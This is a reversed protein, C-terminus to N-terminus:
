KIVIILFTRTSKSQTNLKVEKMKYTFLVWGNRTQEIKLCVITSEGNYFDLSAGKNVKEMKEIGDITIWDASSIVVPRKNAVVSCEKNTTSEYSFSMGGPLFGDNLYYIKNPTLRLQYVDMTCAAYFNRGLFKVRTERTYRKGASYKETAPLDDILWNFERQPLYALFNIRLGDIVLFQDYCRLHM